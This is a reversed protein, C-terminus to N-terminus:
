LSIDVGNMADYYNDMGNTFLFVSGYGGVSIVYNYSDQLTINSIAHQYSGFVTGGLTTYVKQEVEINTAGTPLLVSTGVGNTLYQTNYSYSTGYSSTLKTIVTNNSLGTNHFRVGIVDYSRVTPNVLWKLYTTVICSTSCSKAITLQKSPTIHIVGRDFFHKNFDDSDYLYVTNITVDNNNIDLDSIWEYDELTMREFYNEGYYNNIFDYEKKTITVGNENTYSQNNNNNNIAFVDSSFFTVCLVCISFFTREILSKM